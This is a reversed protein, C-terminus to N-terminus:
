SEGLAERMAAPRDTTILDVGARRMARAMGAHNVTWAAVELGLQHAENCLGRSVAWQDVCLGTAGVEAALAPLRGVLRHRLAAALIRRRGEGRGSRVQPLTRWRAVGPAREALHSLAGPDDSCIVAVDDLDGVALRDGLVPVVVTGKLDLLLRLQGALHDLADDLELVAIARRVTALDVTAIPAGDALVGDHHLVLAADATACVDVELRDLGLRLAADLSGRDPAGGPRGAALGSHGIWRVGGITSRPLPSPQCRQAM